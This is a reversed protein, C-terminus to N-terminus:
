LGKPLSLSPTNLFKYIREPVIFWLMGLTIEVQFTTALKGDADLPTVLVSTKEV